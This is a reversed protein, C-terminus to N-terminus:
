AETVTFTGKMGAAYHGPVHCGVLLKGPADFTAELVGSAGPELYISAAGRHSHGPEANKGGKAMAKEAEDQAHRDGVLFEHPVVGPNTVEFRIPRGVPVTIHEPAFFFEGMTVEVVVPAGAQVSAATTVTPAPATAAPAAERAPVAPAAASVREATSPGPAAVAIAIGGISFFGAAIATMVRAALRFERLTDDDTPASRLM